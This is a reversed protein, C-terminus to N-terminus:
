DRIMVQISAQNVSVPAQFQHLNHKVVFFLCFQDAELRFMMQLHTYKSVNKVTSLSAYNTGPVM